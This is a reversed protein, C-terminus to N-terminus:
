GPDRATLAQLVDGIREHTVRWRRENDHVLQASECCLDAARSIVEAASFLRRPTLRGRALDARV